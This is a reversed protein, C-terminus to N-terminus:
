LICGVVQLASWTGRTYPILLVDGAKPSVARNGPPAGAAEAMIWPWRWHGLHSRNCCNPGPFKKVHHVGPEQGTLLHKLWQPALKLYDVIVPHPLYNASQLFPLYYSIGPHPHKHSAYPATKSESALNDPGSKLSHFSWYSNQPPFVNIENQEIPCKTEVNFEFVNENTISM